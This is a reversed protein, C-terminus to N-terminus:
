SRFNIALMQTYTKTLIVREGPNLKISLWDLHTKM